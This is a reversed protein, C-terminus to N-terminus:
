YEADPIVEALPLDSHLPGPHLTSSINLDWPSPLALALTTTPPLAVKNPDAFVLQTPAILCTHCSQHMPVADTCGMGSM